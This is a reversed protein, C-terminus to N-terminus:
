LEVGYCVEAFSAAELIRLAVALGAVEAAVIQSFVKDVPRAPHARAHGAIECFDKRCITM